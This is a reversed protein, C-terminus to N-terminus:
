SEEIRKFFGYYLIQNKTSLIDDKYHKQLILLQTFIKSGKLCFLALLLIGM